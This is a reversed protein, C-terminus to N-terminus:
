YTSIVGYLITPRPQGGPKLALRATTISPDGPGVSPGPSIRRTRWFSQLASQKAPPVYSGTSYSVPLKGSGPLKQAGPWQRLGVQKSQGLDWGCGEAQHSLVPLRHTVVHLHWVRADIQLAGQGWIATEGPAPPDLM